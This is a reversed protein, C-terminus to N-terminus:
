GQPSLAQPQTAAASHPPFLYCSACLPARRLPQGERKEPPDWPLADSTRPLTHTRGQVRHQLSRHSHALAWGDSHATYDHKVYTPPRIGSWQGVVTLLEPSVQPPLHSPLSKSQVSRTSSPFRSIMLAKVRSFWSILGKEKGARLRPRAQDMSHSKPCTERWREPGCRKTTPLVKKFAREARQPLFHKM